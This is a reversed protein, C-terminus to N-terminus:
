LKRCALGFEEPGKGCLQSVFSEVVVPHYRDCTRLNRWAALAIPKDITENPQLIVGDGYSEVLEALADADEEPLGKYNIVIGGHELNHVLVEPEITEDSVGWPAVSGYHPGSTPPNSNYQDHEQGRQIHDRGQDPFTQIESCGAAAIAEQEGARGQVYRFAGFAVLAVAVVGAGSWGIMKRLRQARRRRREAEVRAQRAAERKEKRSAEKKSM